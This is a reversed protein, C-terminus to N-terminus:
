VGDRAGLQVPEVPEPLFSVNRMWVGEKWKVRKVRGDVRRM